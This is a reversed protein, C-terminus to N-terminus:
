KKLSLKPYCENHGRNELEIALQKESHLDVSRHSVFVNAM